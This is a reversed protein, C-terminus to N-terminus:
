FLKKEVAGSGRNINKWIHRVISQYLSPSVRHFLWFPWVYFPAPQIGRDRAVARLGSRAVRAPDSGFRSFLRVIQPGMGKGSSDELYIRGDRYINTNIVGPCLISVKINHSALECRLSEGLGVLAFKTACYPAEGPFAGLGGGSATILINGEGREIMRPVFVHIMYIVSWLNNDIIWRWDEIKHEEIRGGIWVGANICLVDVHAWESFFSQGFDEVGSLRSHDVLYGRSEAGLEGIESVVRDIRDQIRDTIIVTAGAKAFEIALARGIGSGAGTIIAIKGQFRKM